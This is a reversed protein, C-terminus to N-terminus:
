FRHSPLPSNVVVNLASLALRQVRVANRRFSTNINLKMSIFSVRLYIRELPLCATLCINQRGWLFRTWLTWNSNPFNMLWSSWHSFYSVIYEIIVVPFSMKRETTSCVDILWYIICWIHWLKSFLFVFCFMDICQVSMVSEPYLSMEVLM